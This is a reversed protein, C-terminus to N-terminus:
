VGTLFENKTRSNPSLLKIDLQPKYPNYSPAVNYIQQTRDPSGRIHALLPIGTSDLEFPTMLLTSYNTAADTAKM